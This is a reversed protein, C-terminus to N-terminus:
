AKVQENQLAIAQEPTALEFLPNAVGDPTTVELKHVKFLGGLTWNCPKGDPKNRPAGAGTWRGVCSYGLKPEVEEFTAGAGADMLSRGSQVTGCMPCVFAINERAAVGQARMEEHLQQVTIKRTM